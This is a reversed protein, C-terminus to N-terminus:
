SECLNADKLMRSIEFLRIIKHYNSLHQYQQDIKKLIWELEWLHDSQLTETIISDTTSNRITEIRNIWEQPTLIREQKFCQRWLLLAIEQVDTDAIGKGNIKINIQGQYKKNINNTFQPSKIEDFTFKDITIIPAINALFNRFSSLSDTALEGKFLYALYPIDRYKERFQYMCVETNTDQCSVIANMTRLLLAEDILTNETNYKIWQYIHYGIIKDYNPNEKTGFADPYETTLDNALKDLAPKKSEKIEKRLYYMFENILSITTENSTLSIKDVLLLFARKSSSIFSVSIPIDFTTDGHEQIDGISIDTIQNTENQGVQKFFDSWKQLLVIDDYPNKELFDRGVMDTNITGIYPDKWINLRPLYLYQLLYNYPIALSNLYTNYRETDSKKEDYYSVLDKVTRLNKVEKRTHQNIKLQNIDYTELYSLDVTHENLTKIQARLHFFLFGAVGISLIALPAVLWANHKNKEIFIIIKLIVWKFWSQIDKLQMNKIDSAFINKIANSVSKKM